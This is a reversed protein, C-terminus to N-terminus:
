PLLPMSYYFENMFRILVAHHKAYGGFAFQDILQWNNKKYGTLIKITEALGDANKLVSIGIAQQGASIRDIIGALMTGTGVACCYHTFDNTAYDLITSAGAMGPPGYGGERVLLYDDISITEPIKQNRYDPRSVFVLQMKEQKAQQLTLSPNGPEEGRIIGLSELGHMNCIAATAVIHNSWPGGFTVIGKKKQKLAEELYFRLKFWKNGSIVPNIKDLRLVSVKVSRYLFSIDDITIQEFALVQVM